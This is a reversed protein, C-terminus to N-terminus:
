ASAPKVAPEDSGPQAPAAATPSTLDERRVRITVATTVLAALAIGSAALFGRTIGTALAHHYISARVQASALSHGSRGAAAIQSRASNAVATWAVTGLAALGIAGGVQQGTNLLSSALGSDQDRVRTLAVLSLPVFLLALGAATVLSPGLLGALYTTHVSIRSFWYMGGTTIAAGALMLPRAGARAVLRGALGSIMVLAGAFPLFAVGAKLASYGLVDQVFITLFFFLGFMATSTLLMILYAGSRSRSAFIRLPMLANESRAEIVMFVALLALAATLSAAVRPDAWHSVGRPDTSASSLGYVLLAVGGTGAAAGPLDFRGRRRASGPLVFPAAAAVAAGIPVNVFLV